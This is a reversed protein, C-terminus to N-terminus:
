PQPAKKKGKNGRKKKVTNPNPRASSTIHVVGAEHRDKKLKKKGEKRKKGQNPDSVGAAVQEDVEVSQPAVISESKVSVTVEVGECKGDGRRISQKKAAKSNLTDVVSLEPQDQAVHDVVTGVEATKAVQKQKASKVRKRQQNYVCLCTFRAQADVEALATPEDGGNGTLTAMSWTKIVGDSSASAVCTSALAGTGGIIDASLQFPATLGRIRSKHAKDLSFICLSPKRIDWSMLHGGECGAILTNEGHTTVSLVKRQPDITAVTDGQM